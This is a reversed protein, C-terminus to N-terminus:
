RRVKIQAKPSLTDPKGLFRLLKPARDPSTVPHLEERYCLCYSYSICLLYYNNRHIALYQMYISLMYTTHLINFLTSNYMHYHIHTYLVCWSLLQKWTAENMNNHIAVVTDMDDESAGDQKHKRVLANWFM